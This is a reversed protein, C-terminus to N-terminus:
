LSGQALKATSENSTVKQQRTEQRLFLIGTIVIALHIVIFPIYSAASYGRFIWIADAVIGRFIEAGVVTLVLM